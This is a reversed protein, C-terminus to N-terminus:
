FGKKQGRSDSGLNEISEMHESCNDHGREPVLISSFPTPGTHMAPLIGGVPSALLDDLRHRQSGSSGNSGSDRCAGLITAVERGPPSCASYVRKIPTDRWGGVVPPTGHVHHERMARTQIHVLLRHHGTAHGGIGGPLVGISDHLELFKPRHGDIQQGQGVPQGRRPNRM